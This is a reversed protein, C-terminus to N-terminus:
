ARHRWRTTATRRRAAVVATAGAILMVAAAIMPTLYGASTRGTAALDHQVAAASETTSPAAATDESHTDHSAPTRAPGAAGDATTPAATGPTTAKEPTHGTHERPVYTSAPRGTGASPAKGPSDGRFHGCTRNGNLCTDVLRALTPQDWANFFDAHASYVSGSSLTVDGTTTGVPYVINTRLTPLARPHSAPCKGGPAFSVHQTANGGTTQGNWCSPWMVRLQIAGSGCNRPPQQGQIQTNDSCGWQIHADVGSAVTNKMDGFVMRFGPPFAEVTTGPVARNEYYAVFSSPDVKKGARFVSPAWYSSRDNNACTSTVGALSQPTSNADAGTNGFFDHLHTAGPRGPAVIPDDALSRVYECSVKFQGSPAGLATGPAIGATVGVAVFLTTM